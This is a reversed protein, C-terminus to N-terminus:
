TFSVTEGDPNRYIDGNFVREVAHIIRVLCGVPKYVFKYNCGQVIRHTYCREQPQCMAPLKM